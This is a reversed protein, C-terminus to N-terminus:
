ILALVSSSFCLMINCVSNPYSWPLFVFWFLEATQCLGFWVCSCLEFWVLIDGLGSQVGRKFNFGVFRLFGFFLLTFCSMEQLFVLCCGGSTSLLVLIKCCFMIYLGVLVSARWLDEGLLKPRANEFHVSTKVMNVGEIKLYQMNQENSLLFAIVLVM